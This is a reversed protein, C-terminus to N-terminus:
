TTTKLQAKLIKGTATKPLQSVFAITRPVKYNALRQRCWQLLEQTDAQQGDRLVVLARPVEGRVPDPVGIVAAEAVAPHSALALEVERPYVNLGGVLILDKKRDVIYYYGDQDVRGLDGTHYWGNRLVEATEAPRNLYGQMVNPGRAVIEGVEGPPLPHGAEDVIRLEVQPIAPGVSGVKRVGLPRNVTLVPACETPGYGEYIPVGFKAEFAELVAPPLPAGGSLCLRWSSFDAPPRPLGALVAFLTPVGGFLTVRHEAIAKLTLDPAFRPEVVITAGVSLPELFMVTAAFAHFMPLVTLFVDEETVHLIERFSQINALLNRHTLMAGKPRGTTGSTYLCAAVDERDVEPPVMGQPLDGPPTGLALDGAQLGSSAAADLVLAPMARGLGERAARLLPYTMEICVMAVPASDELVYRVEEAKLLPNLPVVTAGAALIGFYGVGFEPANPLMLIVRDGRRVGVGQLLRGLSGAKEQLDAYSLRRDRFVLAPRHPVRGASAALMDLLTM